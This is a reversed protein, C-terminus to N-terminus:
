SCMHFSSCRFILKISVITIKPTNNGKYELRSQSNKM